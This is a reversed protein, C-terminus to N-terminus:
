GRMKRASRRYGLTRRWSDWIARGVSSGINIFLGTGVNKMVFGTVMVRYLRNNCYAVMLSKIHSDPVSWGPKGAGSVYYKTVAERLDTLQDNYPM